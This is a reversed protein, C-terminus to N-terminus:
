KGNGIRAQLWQSLDDLVQKARQAPENYIEHYLDDYVILKKDGRPLDDFFDRSAGADVLHDEGAVQLLIPETLRHANGRVYEMAAMFETFWRASVRDHVLPDGRYAAVVAPDHSIKDVELENAM